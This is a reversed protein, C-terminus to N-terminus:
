SQPLAQHGCSQTVLADQQQRIAQLEVTSELVQNKITRAEGGALMGRVAVQATQTRTRKYQM